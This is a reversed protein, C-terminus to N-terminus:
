PMEGKADHEDYFRVLVAKQRPNLEEGRALKERMKATFMAEWDTLKSATALAEMGTVRDADLLGLSGRTAM